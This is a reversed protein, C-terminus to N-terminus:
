RCHLSAPTSILLFKVSFVRSYLSLWNVKSLFLLIRILDFKLFTKDLNIKSIANLAAMKIYDLTRIKLDGIM